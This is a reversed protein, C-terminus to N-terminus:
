IFIIFIIQWKEAYKKNNKDIYENDLLISKGILESFMLSLNKCEQISLGYIDIMYYNFLPRIEGYFVTKDGTQEQITIVRVDNDNTSYEAKVYWKQTTYNNVLSQVYKILMLQKREIDEQTM